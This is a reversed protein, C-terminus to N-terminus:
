YREPKAVIRWTRPRFILKGAKDYAPENDINVAITDTNKQQYSYSINIKVDTKLDALTKAINKSTKLNVTDM